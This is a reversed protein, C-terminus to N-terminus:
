GGVYGTQKPRRHEAKQMEVKFGTAIDEQTLAEDGGQKIVRNNRAQVIAQYVNRMLGGNGGNTVRGKSDPISLNLTTLKKILPLILKQATESAYRDNYSERIQEFIRHLDENSYDDFQIWQFRRTLGVNSALFEKMEKNYGAAIVVLNDRHEEMYRILVSIVESNFSNQGDKVALEYAEDIFLVGGLADDLIKRTNEGTQGVYGKVFEDSTAQTFKNQPIAGVEFLAEAVIRAITSKGTGPSGAFIMNYSFGFDTNGSKRNMEITNMISDVQEKVEDQGIMNDLKEKATIHDTNGNVDSRVYATTGGTLKWYNQDIVDQYSVTTQAIMHRINNITEHVNKVSLSAEKAYIGFFGEDAREIMYNDLVVDSGERLALGYKSNTDNKLPGNKPEKKTFRKPLEETVLRFTINELTAQGEIDVYKTIISDLIQAAGFLTVSRLTCSTMISQGYLLSMDERTSLMIDGPYYSEFICNEYEVVTGYDTLVKALRCNEFWARAKGKIHIAPYIERMPGILDVSVNNMRIDKDSVFANSRSEVVFTLDNMELPQSSSIGMKGQPVTFQKNNGNIIIDKDIHVVECINKHLEITDDHNAKEIAEALTKVRKIPNLGGVHITKM